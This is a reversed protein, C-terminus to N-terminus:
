STSADGRGDGNCDGFRRGRRARPYHYGLDLSRRRGARGDRAPAATPWGPRGRRHRRRLRRRPVPRGARGGDAHAPLESRAALRRRRAIPPRISTSRSTACTSACIAPAARCAPATATLGLDVVRQRQVRRHLRGPQGRATSTTASRSRRSAPRERRHRQLAGHRGVLRGRRHRGPHRQVHQRVRHQARHDRARAGAIPTEGSPCLAAIRCAGGVQIGGSNGFALNNVIRVDEANVVNIAAGPREAFGVVNRVVAGDSFNQIQVGDDTAGTVHFGDVVVGCVNPINFGPRARHTSRRHGRQLLVQRCRGAGVGPVDGTM